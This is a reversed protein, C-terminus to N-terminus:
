STAHIRYAMQKSRMRIADIRADLAEGEESSADDDDDVELGAAAPIGLSPISRSPSSASRATTSRSPTVEAQHPKVLAACKLLHERASHLQTSCTGKRLLQNAAEECDEQMEKILVELRRIKDDLPSQGRGSRSTGTAKRVLPSSQRPQNTAAPGPRHIVGIQNQVRTSGTPPKLSASEAAAITGMLKSRVTQLKRVLEDLRRQSAADFLVHGKTDRQKRVSSPSPSPSTPEHRSSASKSLHPREDNFSQMSDSRVRSFRSEPERAGSDRHEDLYQRWHNVSADIKTLLADWQGIGSQVLQLSQEQTAPSENLAAM